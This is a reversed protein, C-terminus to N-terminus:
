KVLGITSVYIGTAIASVIVGAINAGMAIPLVVAFPNEEEAAHQAIKATTPVCSVGAIGIVPNFDGRRYFYILWGGIIGGVGSFFLASVGLILLMLVKPNLLTSAECLTGLMLGLLMTSMYLVTNELLDQYPVIESEKIILGLFFSMILPAAIPLLLCLLGCVVVCFIFKNEKPVEPINCVVDIGRYKKPILLKILYPYGAYTLSLYLYAIISVPVFLKPAMMLSGFLVMPGDAGGIIAVSAAESPTLGLYVGLILTIFTGAEAFIAITISAWPNALIFSIESLAGIGMFVLCAILSNSFMLNYIPQLFNVQMINVLEEPNEVLPNLFLTGLSGDALFLVGANVCIMGIGMPVMILPELKRKFGLYALVFGALMLVIRAIITSTDQITFSVIGPFLNSILQIIPM